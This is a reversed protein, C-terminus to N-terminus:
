YRKDLLKIGYHEYPFDKLTARVEAWGDKSFPLYNEYGGAPFMGFRDREDGAGALVLEERGRYVELIEPQPVWMVRMGAKRGAEVGATSDEFVLCEEPKISIEGPSLAQNLRELSQLFIDPAPKGKAVKISPDDGFIRNHEPIAALVDSFKDTKIKFFDREASTAIALRVKPMARTCLNYLLEAVGPNLQSDRFLHRQADIKAKFEDVSIPLKAWEM